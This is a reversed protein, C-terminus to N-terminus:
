FKVLPDGPNLFQEKEMWDLIKKWHKTETFNAILIARGQADMYQVLWPAEPKVRFLEFWPLNRRLTEITARNNDNIVLLQTGESNKLQDLSEAADVPTSTWMSSVRYHRRLESQLSDLGSMTQSNAYFHLSNLVAKFEYPARPFKEAFLKVAQVVFASDITKGADLYSKCLPYLAHGYGDIYDDAYWSSTDMRSSLQLYGWGNGLATALGEDIYKTALAQHPTKQAKFWRVMDNQLNKPQEDYLIHCMEHVAVALRGEINERSEEVFFGCILTNGHPTASSYGKRGPMPYLAIVFPQANDWSTCYFQKVTNFIGAIKGSYAQMEKMRARAKDICPNWVIRDYYPEIETLVKMLKSHESNPLIGTTRARFDRVDKANVSAIWILDMTSRTSHRSEPYGDWKYQYDLNLSKYVSLLEEFRKDSRPAQERIYQRFTRSVGNGESTLTELFNLLCQPKSITFQVMDASQASLFHVFLAFIGSFLFRKKM